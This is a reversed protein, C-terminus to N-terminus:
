VEGKSTLNVFLKQLEVKSIELDLEKVKMSDENSRKGEITVKKFGGLVEESVIKKDKVYEDVKDSKGSVAYCESILSEVSNCKLVKGDKIIVVYEILDSIEEIIHTSLIITSENKEYVKLLESYFLERHNADLGLVPEDFILVEANSALTIIIKCISNYGTSLSRLKKDINLEFLESLKKAYDIDFNKYFDKTWKFIDKIKYETPLLDRETMFYIKSLAVDNEIASEGDVIIEGSNLFVRNTICNLLTTKGAGNRGLLGYIKGSEFELSINDLVKNSAYTKVLGSIKINIMEIVEDSTIGLRKGEEILKSVYNDFFTARRKKKLKEKAGSCVFMGVGRKKYIINDGVLLNYGKGVTAPNIKYTVSIETTSPVQEEEEYIGNLIGDEITNAIQIYIPSEDNFEFM